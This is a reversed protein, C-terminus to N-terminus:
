SQQELKGTQIGANKLQADTLTVINENTQSLPKQEETKSGGCSTLLVITTSLIILYKM